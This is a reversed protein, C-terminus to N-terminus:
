SLTSSASVERTARVPGLMAVIAAESVYQLAAALKVPHLLADAIKKTMIALAHVAPVPPIHANVVIQLMSRAGKKPVVDRLNVQSMMRHLVKSQVAM